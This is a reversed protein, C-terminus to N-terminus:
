QRSRQMGSDSYARQPCRRKREGWGPCTECGVPRSHGRYNVDHTEGCEVPVVPADLNVAAICSRMKRLHLRDNGAFALENEGRHAYPLLNRSHLRLPLSGMGRMLDSLGAM